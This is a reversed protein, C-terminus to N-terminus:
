SFGTQFCSPIFCIANSEQPFYFSVQSEAACRSLEPGEGRFALLSYRLPVFKNLCVLSIRVAITRRKSALM